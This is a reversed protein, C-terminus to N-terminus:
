VFLEKQIDRFYILSIIYFTDETVEPLLRYITDSFLINRIMLKM